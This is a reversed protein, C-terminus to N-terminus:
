VSAFGGGFRGVQCPHTRGVHRHHDGVPRHLDQAAMPVDALVRDFAPHAIAPPYAGKHPHRHNLAPLSPLHYTFHSRHYTFLSLHSTIPTLSLHTTLPALLCDAAPRFGLQCHWFNPLM